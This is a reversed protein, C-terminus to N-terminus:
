VLGFYSNAFAYDYFKFVDDDPMNHGSVPLSLQNSCTNATPLLSVSEVFGICPQVGFGLPPEEDTGTVCKFVMGPNLEGRRGAVWTIM